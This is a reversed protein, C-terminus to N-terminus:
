PSSSLRDEEAQKVVAAVEEPSTVDLRLALADEGHGEVLDQLQEPKRATASAACCIRVPSLLTTIAPPCSLM